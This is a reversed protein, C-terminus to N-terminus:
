RRAAAKARGLAPAQRRREARQMWLRPKAATLAGDGLPRGESPELVHVERAARLSVFLSSMLMLIAAWVPHLLGASAAAMGLVNYGAAFRMNDRIRRVAGRAVTIALPVRHAEDVEGSAVSRALDTATAPALAVHSAAMAGSDNIGDGVFLVRHGRAEADRVCTVKDEPRANARVEDAAFRETRVADDGTLLVSRLGLRSVERFTQLVERDVREDVRAAATLRGDVVLVLARAGPPGEARRALREAALRDPALDLTGLEVRRDAGSVRDHLWAEVGAGPLIRSSSVSYAPLEDESAGEAPPEGWERFARAIPHDFAAEATRALGIAEARSVPADGPLVFDVVHARADTLTGTKDFVVTDVRALRELADGSRLTVGRSSLHGLATWVALPTAFGLACPCAVLLVAMAHMTAENASTAVTWAVFTLAAVALVVPLLWRALRDATRVLPPPHGLAEEVASALGDLRRAGLVASARLVLSADVVHTGAEVRDGPSRRRAFPEGSLASEEVFAEGEQVVGDVPVVNGPHVLVEDGVRVEKLSARKRAGCPLRVEVHRDIHAIRRLAAQTAGRSQRTLRHGLAYIVALIAVVEYYVDGRGSVTAAFSLTFAGAMGTVFLLDFRISRARVADLVARLLPGGVLALTLLTAALLAMHLAWRESGALESLNVALGVVMMQGAVVASLAIRWWAPRLTEDPSAVTPAPGDCGCSM